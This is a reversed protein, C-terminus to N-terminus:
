AGRPNPFGTTRRSLCPRTGRTRSRLRRYWRWCRSLGYRVEGKGIRSRRQRSRLHSSSAGQRSTGRAGHGVV